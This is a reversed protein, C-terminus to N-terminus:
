VNPAEPTPRGYRARDAASAARLIDPISTSDIDDWIQWLEQETLEAPEPQALLAASAAMAEMLRRALEAPCVDAAAPNLGTHLQSAVYLEALANRYPNSMTHPPPTTTRGSRPLPQYGATMMRGGAPQPKIPPGVPLAPKRGPPPPNSGRRRANFERWYSGRRLSTFVWALNAGVVFGFLFSGM